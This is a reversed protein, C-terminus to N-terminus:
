SKDKPNTKLIKDKPNTKLICTYLYISGNISGPVGAGWVWLCRLLPCIACDDARKDPKPPLFSMKLSALPVTAVEVVPGFLHELSTGPVAGALPAEPAAANPVPHSNMKLSADPKPPLAKPGFSWLKEKPAAKSEPPSDAAEAM